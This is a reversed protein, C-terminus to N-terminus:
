RGERRVADPRGAGLLLAVAPLGLAAATPWALDEVPARGLHVGALQADDFRFLGAAIMVNDFVVTLVLLALLTAATALWWTAPPRRLLVAVALLTAAAVLFPLALSAYTM